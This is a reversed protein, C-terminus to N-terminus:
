GERVHQGEEGRGGQCQGEEERTGGQFVRRGRGKDRGSVSEKMKGGGERVHKGEEKRIGGQCVRTGRGEERGSM